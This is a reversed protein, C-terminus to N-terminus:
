SSKDIQKDKQLIGPAATGNSKLVKNIVATPVNPWAPIPTWTRRDGPLADTELALHIKWSIIKDRINLAVTVAIGLKRIM